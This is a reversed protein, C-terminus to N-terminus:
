NVNGYMSQDTLRDAQSSPTTAPVNTVTIMTYTGDENLDGATSALCDYNSAEYGDRIGRKDGPKDTTAVNGYVNNQGTGEGTKFAESTLTNLYVAEDKNKVKMNQEIDEELLRGGIPIMEYMNDEDNRISVRAQTKPAPESDIQIVGTSRRRRVLVLWVVAVVVIVVLLGLVTSVVAAILQQDSSSLSTSVLLLKVFTESTSGAVHRGYCSCNQDLFDRTTTITISAVSGLSENQQQPYCKIVTRYVEPTGGKIQCNITVNQNESAELQTTSTVGSSTYLV